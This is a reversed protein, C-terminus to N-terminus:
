MPLTLNWANPLGVDADKVRGGKGLSNFIGISMPLHEGGKKRQVSTRVYIHQVAVSEDSAPSVCRRRSRRQNSDAAFGTNMFNQLPIAYHSGNSGFSSMEDANSFAQSFLDGDFKVTLKPDYEM